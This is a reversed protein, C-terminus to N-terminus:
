ADHTKKGNIINIIIVSNSTNFDHILLNFYDKFPSCVNGKLCDFVFLCAKKKLFNEISSLRLECNLRKSNQLIIRHSITTGPKKNPM